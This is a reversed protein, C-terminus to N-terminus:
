FYRFEVLAEIGCGSTSTATAIVVALAYLGVAPATVWSSRLPGYNGQAAGAAILDATCVATGLTPNGGTSIATVPCLAVSIKSALTGSPQKASGTVSVQLTKGTVAYDAPDFGFVAVYSNGNALAVPNISNPITLWSGVTTGNAVQTWISRLTQPVASVNVGSSPNYLPV